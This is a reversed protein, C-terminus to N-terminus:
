LGVTKRIEKLFPQIIEKVKNKGILLIKDVEDDTIKDRKKKAEEFFEQHKNFIEEKIYGYGIGNVEVSHKWEDRQRDDLFLDLIKTSNDSLYEWTEGQSRSNTIIQSIQKKVLKPEGFVDIINGYSKSMKKGDIGPVVPVDGLLPEPRHLIDTQFESNFSGAIDQTIEIHPLQDKGVCVLDSQLLLIDASMLIPYSFLGMNASLGSSVKEKYAPARKMLGVSCVCNLIWALETTEPIDSQRYLTTKENLGFGIYDKAIDYSYRRLGEGSRMSTLSHYDAIFYFCEYKNQLELQQKIAGFYNGLHIKGSPQIGSIVRM